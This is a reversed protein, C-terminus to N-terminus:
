VECVVAGTADIWTWTGHIVPLGYASQTRTRASEPVRVECHLVGNPKLVRERVTGSRSEDASPRM